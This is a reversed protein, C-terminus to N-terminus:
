ISIEMIPKGGTLNLLGFLIKQFRKLEAYITENSSTEVALLRIFEVVPNKGPSSIELDRLYIKQYMFDLDRPYRMRKMWRMERTDVM